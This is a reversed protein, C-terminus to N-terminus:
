SPQAALMTGLDRVLEGAFPADVNGLVSYIWGTEWVVGSFGDIGSFAGGGGHGRITRGAVSRTVFGMGYEALGNISQRTMLETMEPSLLQHARLASLYRCMDAVTSYGGGASNGRAGGPPMALFRRDGLGMVDSGAFTLGLAYGPDSLSPEHTSFPMGARDYVDEQLSQWWPRGTLREVMSGLVIFGENSYSARTGPAFRPAADWFLTMLESVQMPIRDRQFGPRSWLDGLGAQHTLLHEVTILRAAEQNPYEPIVDVIRDAFALLGREVLRGITIATFSKDASGLNFRHTPTVEVGPRALGYAAEFVLEDQPSVIRVVGSFEGGEEAFRCRRGIAEILSSRDDSSRLVPYPYPPPFPWELIDFIKSLTTRDRVLTLRRIRGQRQTRVAVRLERDVAEDGLWTLQGAERQVYEALAALREATLRASGGESLVSARFIEQQSPGGNLASVLGQGIAQELNLAPIAPVCVMASSFARRTMGIASPELVAKM